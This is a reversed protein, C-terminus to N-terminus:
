WDALPSVQTLRPETGGPTLLVALRTESSSLLQVEFGIMRTGPNGHDHPARPEATDYTRLRANPPALVRLRLQRGDRTLLATTGNLSEIRAETVMGWRVTAEADLARLEDQVLVSRDARLAVGRRAADLQGAYVASMDIITHPNPAGTSRVIPAFGKVIQKRGDVVLTNHSLNNLRFVDWRQSGQRRDWLRIGRSELSHYNQAGLDRAWRVGGADLVFSGIDMHGHNAGPSGGKIGVFTDDKEWGSRHIAVPTHGDAHFHTADPPPAKAHAANWLLLFPLLRHRKAASPRARDLLEHLATRERHLLSPDRRTAAFWYMAPAIGSKQGCDSYNFFLGTPGTMQRYYDSSKLFAATTLGFDTGIASRLADVLLVHYVTGYKWYGPGEPYAGDPEYEALARPVNAVAREIIESALKPEDELVALAGLTLGGHCVQNWNNETTVWWGGRQSPRLGKEIIADRIIRRSEPDLGSHLWDYGIALAATMEAVDLFHSPNWDPFAAAALLEQRARELYRDEGTMRHVFALYVVRQLCTRSVELLRRGVQERQVPAAQLTADACERVYTMARRLLADSEVAAKVAVAASRDMFLRPHEKTSGNIRHTVDDEPGPPATDRAAQGLKTAIDHLSKPWQPLALEVAGEIRPAGIGPVLKSTPQAYIFPVTDQGYTEQLSAGLASMAPAYRSVDQGVNHPGPVWVVGRVAMPTLPSICFNYTLTANETHRAWQDREPQPFGPPGDVLDDPLEDGGRLLDAVTRNYAKLTEIYGTVASKGAETDPYLLNLEDREEEFGPARQLGEYSIWTIPPNDAGLTIVGVPVGPEQVQSAFAYGAVTFDPNSEEDTATVWRAVYKGGGIEMRRKRPERFRRAKTRIRFERALPLPPAERIKRDRPILEGSLRTSGTLVWLDGVVVGSVTASAGDDATVKLDRGGAHAELPDLNVRWREFEDVKVSHAQGAFRVTVTTGARAFGWVPVPMERQIVAHSRFPTAIQIYPPRSPAAGRSPEAEAEVMDEQFLQKGDFYAFPAAPLGARNYLNAGIPSASYAYTVGVPEPVNDSTVVVEDGDIVARAAHWAGDRGALRFHELDADPTAQAPEVYSGPTRRDAEMGKSGVMLGDGPGRQRFRVRVSPGEVRHSQYTPGSYALDHGYQHALAWRALRKGPDLKNFHHIGQPREPNLDHQPVMGVNEANMAFLRQAERIDAFGVNNVDPDGYCQMQTFYFPLDPRQWSMRLGDLLAHMKAAYIRGDNANHTGQCWIVGRIAFPILPAIKRNYMRSPGKWDEAIGPLTPRPLARGGRGMLDESEAQWGKLSAFFADYAQQGDTTTPDSQRIRAAIHQLEPRAAFGAYPTWTEIGTAGHTSRLIGIPVDLGQHLEWAFALALASFSGAKGSRKWGDKSDARHRVFTSSGIDVTYERVPEDLDSRQLQNALDRCMSKGAIWDMNSQGSAFWVEGVLVGTRKISEGDDARVHLVREDGCAQLPDLDVRWRGKADTAATKEQDAFAVTVRSGPKGWGWIPCPMERQLIAGDVFPSALALSSGQQALVPATVALLLLPTRMM